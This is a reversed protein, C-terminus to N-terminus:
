GDDLGALAEGPVQARDADGEFQPCGASAVVDDASSVLGGGGGPFLPPHSWRGEPPDSVVLVGGRNEYATALRATDTTHFGTDKMGLPGLV